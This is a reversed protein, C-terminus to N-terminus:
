QLSRLYDLAKEPDGYRVLSIREPNAPGDHAALATRTANVDLLMVAFLLEPDLRAEPLALMITEATHTFDIAYYPRGIDQAANPDTLKDTSFNALLFTDGSAAHEGHLLMTPTGTSLLTSRDISFEQPQEGFESIGFQRNAEAAAEINDIASDPGFLAAYEMATLRQVGENHATIHAVQGINFAYACSLPHTSDPNLTARNEEGKVASHATPIVKARKTALRSIEAASKIFNGQPSIKELARPGLQATAAVMSVRTIGYAGGFYRIYPIDVPLGEKQLHRSSAHTIGRDDGCGLMILGNPREKLTSVIEEDAEPILLDEMDESGYIEEIILAGLVRPVNQSQEQPGLVAEHM